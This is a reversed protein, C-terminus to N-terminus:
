LAQALNLRKKISFLRAKSSLGYRAHDQNKSLSDPFGMYMYM